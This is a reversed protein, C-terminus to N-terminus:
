KPKYSGTFGGPSTQPRPTPRSKGQNYREGGGAAPAGDTPQEADDADGDHDAYTGIGHGLHSTGGHTRGVKRVPTPEYCGAGEYEDEYDPM